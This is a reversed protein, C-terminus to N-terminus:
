KSMGMTLGSILYRQFVLYVVIAPLASMLSGAMLVPVNLLHQAPVTALGVTIPRLAPTQLFLLGVLLDDWIQIFQLVVVTFIAPLALPLMIRLFITTYGLGDILSAEVVDEPLRRFYTTMLFTSFPAGLAAYVLIAGYYHNIFGIRALNVYEPVILSQMPVMMASVILLFAPTSFRYRLTGLAYGATTSVALIIAIASVTILTSNLLERGVPLTRFLEHWSSLSFGHGVQFQALSRFSAIGMSWFPYLMVVAIAGLALYTLARVGRRRWVSSARVGGALGLASV